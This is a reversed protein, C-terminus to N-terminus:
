GSGSSTSGPAPMQVGQVNIVVEHYNHRDRATIQVAHEFLVDQTSVQVFELKCDYLGECDILKVYLSLQSHQAPFRGSVINNFVGVITKKGTVSDQSVQDCVLFAVPVPIVISLNEEPM